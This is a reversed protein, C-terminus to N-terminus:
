SRSIERMVKDIVPTIDRSTDVALHQRRIRQVGLKMRRYVAWDAGSRDEPDVKHAREELRLRVVDAPAEVRVLVLKAGAKDAIHYPTERRHESLNTADLIVPVGKKLLEEVLLHTAKFLRASEGASHEPTPFLVCRLADSELTVFPMRQSLQRCFYSKGSGPLGSVVVFPPRALPEPLAGLNRKLSAVDALVGDVAEDPM